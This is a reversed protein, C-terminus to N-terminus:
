EHGHGNYGSGHAHRSKGFVPQRPNRAEQFRLDRGAGQGARLGQDPPAARDRMVAQDPLHIQRGARRHAGIRDEPKIGHGLRHRAHRQQHQPFLAFHRQIIRHGFENGAKAPQCGAARGHRHQVKHPVRGAQGIAEVVACRNIGGIARLPDRLHVGFAAQRRHDRM